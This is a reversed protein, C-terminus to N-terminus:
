AVLASAMELKKADDIDTRIVIAKLQETREPDNRLTRIIDKISLADGGVPVVRKMDLIDHRDIIITSESKESDVVFAVAYWDLGTTIIERIFTEYQRGKYQFSVTDNINRRFLEIRCRILKLCRSCCWCTAEQSPRCRSRRRLRRQRVGFATGEKEIDSRRGQM